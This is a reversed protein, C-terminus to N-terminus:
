VCLFPSARDHMLKGAAFSIDCPPQHIKKLYYFSMTLNGLTM